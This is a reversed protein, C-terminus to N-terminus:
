YSHPLVLKNTVAAGETHATRARMDQFVYCCDKFLLVFVRLDFKSPGKPLLLSPIAEQV